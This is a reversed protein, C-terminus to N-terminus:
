SFEVDECRLITWEACKAISETAKAPIGLLKLGRIFDVVIFFRGVREASCAELFAVIWCAYSFLVELRPREGLCLPITNVFLQRWFELLNGLLPRVRM